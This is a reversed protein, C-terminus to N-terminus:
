MNDKCETISDNVFKTFTAFDNDYKEGVAEKFYDYETLLEVIEGLSVWPRQEM